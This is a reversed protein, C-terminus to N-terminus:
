QPAKTETKEIVQVKGKDSLLYDLGARWGEHGSGGQQRMVFGNSRAREFYKRVYAMAEEANAARKTGDTKESTFIWRWFADIGPKRGKVEMLRAAPLEPLIEHYAQVILDYPCKPFKPAPRLFSRNSPEQRNLSPEDSAPKLPKPFGAEPTLSTPKLPSASKQPSVPKLPPPPGLADLMIRYRNTGRPGKNKLARLEGSAQLANLVYNGNRRTMRCKRALSAVAPYSNGDDDSYDALVVLMLLESGAHQSSDLVRTICRVSM